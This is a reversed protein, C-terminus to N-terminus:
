TCCSSLHEVELIWCGVISTSTCKKPFCYLCSKSNTGGLNTIFLWSPIYLCNKPNTGGPSSHVVSIFHQWNHTPSLLWVASVSFSMFSVRLYFATSSLLEWFSSYSVWLLRPTRPRPPPFPWIFSDSLPNLKMLSHHNCQIVSIQFEFKM